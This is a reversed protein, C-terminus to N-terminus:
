VWLWLSIHSDLPSRPCPMSTGTVSFRPWAPRAMTRLEIRMVTSPSLCGMKKELVHGFWRPVVIADAAFRPSLRLGDPHELSM